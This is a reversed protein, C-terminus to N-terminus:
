RRLQLQRLGLYVAVAALLSVLSIVAAEILLSRRSHWGTEPAVSLMWEGNPVPIAIDVPRELPQDSSSAFVHRVSNDPRLRWLEYRYGAREIADLRTALLLEPLRILVQVLGWFQENGDADKIFVPNRGVIGVGGQRLDVPGALGLQRREIVQRTEPGQVPDNLPSFGIVRENGALPEVARITGDPALQLAAIGGFQGILEKALLPFNDIKGNGQRIVASLAIAASLSRDLRGGLDHAVAVALQRAQIEHQQHDSREIGFAVLGGLLATLLGALAAALLARRQGQANGVASIWYRM